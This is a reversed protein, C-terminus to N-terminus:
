LRCCGYYVKESDHHDFIVQYPYTRDSMGDSCATKILTLDGVSEKDKILAFKQLFSEQLGHATKLSGKMAIFIDNEIKFQVDTDGVTLGWFPENGHCQLACAEISLWALMVGLLM